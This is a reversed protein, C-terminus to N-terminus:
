RKLMTKPRPGPKWSVPWLGMLALAGTKSQNTKVRTVLEFEDWVSVAQSLDVNARPRSSASLAPGSVM